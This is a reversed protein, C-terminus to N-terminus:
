RQTSPNLGMDYSIVRVVPHLCGLNLTTKTGTTVVIEFSGAAEKKM